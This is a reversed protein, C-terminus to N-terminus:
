NTVRTFAPVRIGGEDAAERMILKDRFRKTHSIGMGPIRLHERLFAAMEVDYEDLPIIRDIPHSRALYAVAYIVDPLKSLNPMLFLRDISEHPWPDDKLKEETLLIVYAGQRKCERLFEEGKLYSTIALITTM